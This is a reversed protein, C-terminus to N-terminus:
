AIVRTQQGLEDPLESGSAHQRHLHRGIEGRRRVSDQALQSGLWAPSLQEAANAHAADQRSNFVLLQQHRMTAVQFQPLGGVPLHEAPFIGDDLPHLPRCQNGIQRPKLRRHAVIKEGGIPCRQASGIRWRRIPLRWKWEL